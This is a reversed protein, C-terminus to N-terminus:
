RLVTSGDRYSVDIILADTFLSAVRQHHTALVVQSGDPVQQILYCLLSEGSSSFGRIPDDLLLLTPLLEPPQTLVMALALFRLTSNTLEAFPVLRGSDRHHVALQLMGPAHDPNVMFDIGTYHPIFASLLRCLERFRDTHHLRLWRLYALANSGRRLTAPTDAADGAVRLDEPCRWNFCYRPCSFGVTEWRDAHARVAEPMAAFQGLQSWATKGSADFPLVEVEGDRNVGFRESVPMVRGRDDAALSFGYNFEPDHFHWSLTCEGAPGGRGDQHFVEGPPHMKEMMSDRGMAGLALMLNSKGVGTEGVLVTLHHALPLWDVERISRFGQVSIASLVTM